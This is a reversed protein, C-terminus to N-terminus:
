KKNLHKDGYKKYIEKYRIYDLRLIDIDFIDIIEEGLQVYTDPYDRSGSIALVKYDEFILELEWM